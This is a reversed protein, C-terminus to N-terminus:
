FLDSYHEIYEALTQMDILGKGIAVKLYKGNVANFIEEPVPVLSNFEEYTFLGYQEIDAAMAEADYTMTEPDVEFINFLGDIGGPMSLMGNVFYCLHGYTVPSYATTSEQVVEVDELTVQAMGGAGQKLFCHGIYDAAHEDLYVYKNLDVDYFGHESIVDVTTGDSFSLRIVEYMSLPDSDTFLIPASDFTGTYMNWVLLMEDGTLLEVPKQTGDALTILTGAAVCEQQTIDIKSGNVKMTYYASNLDNAYQVYRYNGEVYSIAISTALANESINVYEFDGKPITPTQKIDKLGKWNAADSEFCMKENYEFIRDKGTDNIIGITWTGGVKSSIFVKIGNATYYNPTFDYYLTLKYDEYNGKCLNKLDIKTGTGSAITGFRYTLEWRDFTYNMIGPANYTKQQNYKLSFSTPNSESDPLETYGGYSLYARVKVNWSMEEWRAYLTMDSTIDCYHAYIMDYDYENYADSDFYEYYCTGGTKSTYYGLFNYGARTPLSIMRLRTGYTVEASADGGSGGNKDFTITSVIPKWYAYITGDSDKDWPSVCDMNEDYYQTGSGNQSSFYGKFTYGTRTPKAAEPFSLGYRVKVSSTGGTGSQSDLTVTREPQLLYNVAREANLLRVTQEGAPTDIKHITASSIIIDKLEAGTLTPDISLLLAAVGSVMPAAFSTGSWLHYGDAIHITETDSMCTNDYCLESPFTSIINDGPAFIDVGQGYNSNKWLAGQETIAGVSILNPLEFKEINLFDDVNQGANGASWVFLGQYDKVKEVVEINDGFRSISYNLIKIQDSGFSWFDIAYDIAEIIDETKSNGLGSTDEATQLPVLEVDQAVGSIGRANNGKAGIIGAVFTGHGGLADNTYSNDNYFDHGRGTNASLDMHFNIGSDIVGVRVSSSGKTVAWAGEIDIGYEGHLAWQDEYYPDDPTESVTAASVTYGDLLLLTAISACIFLMFCFIFSLYYIRKKM